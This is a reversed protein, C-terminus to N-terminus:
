LPQVNFFEHSKGYDLIRQDRTVLIAGMVAATAVLIRDAPDGHFEGPLENCRLAIEESLPMLVIHDDALATSVWRRVGEVFSLRGKRALLSVEWVSIVSVGVRGRASAALITTLTKSRKIQEDENVLWVWAHTDLLYMHSRGVSKRM